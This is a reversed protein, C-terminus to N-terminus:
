LSEKENAETGSDKDEPPSQYYGESKYYGYSYKSYRDYGYKGYHGSRKAGNYVIGLIRSGILTFRSIALELSPKTTIMQYAVILTGDAYRSLEVADTVLNVPPTDMLIYDFHMSLINLLEEMAKSGLLEAPNPPTTGTPILVLNQFGSKYLVDEVSCSGCLVDSLGKGNRIKFFNHLRGKRLDCDLLIVRQGSQALSVALNATTTSKGEMPLSSTILIRRCGEKGPLMFSLNTRLNKYAETVAFIEGNAVISTGRHSEQSKKKM